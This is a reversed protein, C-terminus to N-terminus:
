EPLPISVQQPLNELEEGADFLLYENYCWVADKGEKEVCILLEYDTYSGPVMWSDYARLNAPNSDWFKRTEERIEYSSGDPPCFLGPLNYPRYMEKNGINTLRMTLRYDAYQDMDSVAPEVPQVDVMEIKFYQGRETEIEYQYEEKAEKGLFFGVAVIIVAFVLANTKAQKKM